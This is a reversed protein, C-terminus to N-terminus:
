QKVIKLAGAAVNGSSLYYLGNALRTLNWYTITLGANCHVLQTELLHGGQDYLSLLRDKESDSFLSVRCVGLAPNPAVNMRFTETGKAATGGGPIALTFRHLPGTSTKAVWNNEPDFGDRGWLSWGSNDEAGSFISLAKKDNGALEGDLYYLRLSTQVSSNSERTIDFYRLIGSPGGPGTQQAHGRAIMTWGMDADSTFEIGINGPNLARPANLLAMVKIIGGDGGTICANNREGLIRGSTGLDLTYSNLQLNGSDLSISGTVAADNNLQLDRSPRSVSVNYFSVPHDGGIFSNGAATDGTFIVTSSGALFGGNNILGTNNFVLSPAGSIVLGAGPGIHLGQAAAGFPLCALTIISLYDSPKM